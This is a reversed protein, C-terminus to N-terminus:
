AVDQHLTYRLEAWLIYLYKGEPYQKAYSKYLTRKTYKPYIVFKIETGEISEM